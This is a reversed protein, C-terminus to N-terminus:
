PKIEEKSKGPSDKSTSEAMKEIKRMFWSLYGLGVFQVFQRRRLADATWLRPRRGDLYRKDM